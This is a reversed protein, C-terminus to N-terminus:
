KYTNTLIRMFNLSFINAAASEIETETLSKSKRLAQYVFSINYAVRNYITDSGFLIQTTPVVKLTKQIREPSCGSTDFYVRPYRNAIKKLFSYDPFLVGFNGLHAIVIDLDYEGFLESSGDPRIFNRLVGNYVARKQPSFRKQVKNVYFSKGGHILLFMKNYEAAKYVARLRDRIEPPNDSPQPFFGQLNPHLKLGICGSQRATTIQKTLEDESQNLIDPSHLYFFRPDDFTEKINGTTSWPAVPILVSKDVFSEDMEFLLRQSTIHLFSSRIIKHVSGPVLFYYLPSVISVVRGYCFFELISPNLWTRKNGCDHDPTHESPHVSGMVDLPHVHVDVITLAKERKITQLFTLAEGIKKNM